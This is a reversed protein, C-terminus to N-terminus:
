SIGEKSYNNFHNYSIGSKLELRSHNQQIAETAIPCYVKDDCPNFSIYFDRLLKLINTVYESRKLM